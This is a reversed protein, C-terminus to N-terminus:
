LPLFIVGTWVRKGNPYSKVTRSRLLCIPFFFLGQASNKKKKKKLCRAHFISPRLVLPMVQICSKITYNKVHNWHWMKHMENMESTAWRQRIQIEHLILKRWAIHCSKSLEQRSRDLSVLECWNVWSSVCRTQLNKERRPTLHYGLPVPLQDSLIHFARTLSTIKLGDEIPRCRRVMHFNIKQSGESKNSQLGYSLVCASNTPWDVLSQIGDGLRKM